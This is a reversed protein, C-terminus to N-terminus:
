NNSGGRQPQNNQNYETNNRQCNREKHCRYCTTRSAYNECHCEVCRWDERRNNNNGREGRYHISTGRPQYHNGNTYPAPPNPRRGTERDRINQFIDLIQELENIDEVEWTMLNIQIERPLHKSTYRVFSRFSLPPELYKVENYSRMVYLTM